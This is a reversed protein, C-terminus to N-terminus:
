EAFRRAMHEVLVRLAAFPIPKPYVPIGAPLGGEAEIDDPGLATVVIISSRTIASQTKLRSIMKFGDMDPMALDTIVLDPSHRGILVLGEFGDEAMFLQIPLNWESFQRSYLERQVPDDEVVLARFLEPTPTSSLVSLQRAQISDIVDAPIRRHGGPTKWAPLVGTEVWLQVTSLAVGLRTAAERTSLFDRKLNSKPENMSTASLKSSLFEASNLLSISM